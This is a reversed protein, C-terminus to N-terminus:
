INNAFARIDDWMHNPLDTGFVKVVESATFAGLQACPELSKGKLYAHIFGGAFFDGAGTTDVAVVQRASIHKVPSGRQGLFCGKDGIFIVAIGCIEKLYNCSASAQDHGTLAQAEQENGFLINVNKLAKLLRVRHQQVIEFSGLDFSILAGSEKSRRIAEETLNPTLLTYGEIHVLKVGTFNKPDLDMPKLEQSAGLYSRCTRLTDKTILCIVHGTPLHGVTCLPITEMAQLGKIFRKGAPDDGIKGIFGSCTGLRGLTKAVNAASGGVTEKVPIGGYLLLHQLEDKDITEMGGKKGSVSALFSDSVPIVSDLLAAGIALAQM